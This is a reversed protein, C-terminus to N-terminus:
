RDLVLRAAEHAELAAGRSWAAEAADEGLETWVAQKTQDHLAQYDPRLAFGLRSDAATGAGLLMAAEEASGEATSVGALATLGEGIRHQDGVEDGIRISDTAHARAAGLNGQSLDISALALYARQYSIPQAFGETRWTELREVLLRRAGDDDGEMRLVDAYFVEAFSHNGHGKAAAAAMSELLEPKAEELQGTFILAEGLNAQSFWVEDLGLKVANEVAKAYYDVAADWEGRLFGLQGLNHYAPLAPLGLDLALSAEELLLEAGRDPDVMGIETGAGHLVAVRNAPTILDSVELLREYWALAERRYGGYLWFRWLSGSLAAAEDYREHEFDWTLAARINDHDPEIRSRIERGEFGVQAISRVLGGFYSGHRDRTTAAEGREALLPLAFQRVTELLRYRFVTRHEDIVVMSKAVLGGILDLVEGRPVLEDSCVEEAADLDFGGLFVSTRTLLVQESPELLHYSWDITAQLTQQRPLATRAGGTLLRFRDDLRDLIQHSDLTAIRAAALEIALPIGDLRRCIQAVDEANTDNIAFDSKIAAAREAFLLMAGLDHSPTDKGTLPVALSPVQYTTEGPVNLHERSTALIVVDPCAALVSTATAAIADIVHECNDLVLLASKSALHDTLTEILSRQSQQIVGLSSALAADVLDPDEVPALEVLWVGEVYDPQIRRATEIALSTKGVGGVGTLTVLRHSEVLGSVETVAQQRGVFSSARTPLNGPVRDPRSSTPAPREMSSHREFANILEGVSAYRDRPDKATARRLVENPVGPAEPLQEELQARLVSRVDQGPFPHEGTLLEYLVIGLSYIDTRGDVPDGRIQEPALYRPSGGELVADGGFLDVAIGFDSLFADGAEDLLINSPKVDGHVLGRRHAADLGGGIQDLLRGAAPARFPGRDLAQTVSGGHMFRMVLYPAADDIGFEYLPVVHPREIRAILQAETQFRGAFGEVGALGPHVVKIVVDRDLAPQHARYVVGFAGEGVKEKLQFDDIGM